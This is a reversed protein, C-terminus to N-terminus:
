TRVRMSISVIRQRHRLLMMCYVHEGTRKGANEEARKCIARGVGRENIEAEVVYRERWLFKALLHGVSEALCVRFTCPVQYEPSPPLWRSYERDVLCARRQPCRSDSEGCTFRGRRRYNALGETSQIYALFFRSRPMTFPIMVNTTNLCDQLPRRRKSRPQLRARVNLVVATAYM